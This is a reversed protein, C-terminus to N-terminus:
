ALALLLRVWASLVLPAAAHITVALAVTHAVLAELKAREAADGGATVVSRYPHTPEDRRSPRRRAVVSAAAVLLGLAAAATWLPAPAVRGVLHLNRLKFEWSHVEIVSREGSQMGGGGWRSPPAEGCSLLLMSERQASRLVLTEALPCVLGTPYQPYTGGQGDPLAPATASVAAMEVGHRLGSAGRMLTVQAPLHTAGGQSGERVARVPVRALVPFADLWRSPPPRTTTEYLAVGFLLAVAGFSFATLVARARPREMLAMGCRALVLSPVAIRASHDGFSWWRGGRIFPYFDRPEVGWVFDGFGGVRVESLWILSAWHVAPLAVLSALLTLTVCRAAARHRRAVFGLALASAAALAANLAALTSASPVRREACEFAVFAVAASWGVLLAMAALAQALERFLTLSFRRLRTM